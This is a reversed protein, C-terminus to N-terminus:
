RDDPAFQDRSIHAKHQATGGRDRCNPQGRKACLDIKRADDAFIIKTLKHQAFQRAITDTRAMNFTHLRACPGRNCEGVAMIARKHGIRARNGHILAVIDRRFQKGMVIMQM